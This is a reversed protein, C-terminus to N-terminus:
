EDDLQDLEDDGDELDSRLTALETLLDRAVDVAVAPDALSNLNKSTELYNALDEVAQIHEDLIELISERM